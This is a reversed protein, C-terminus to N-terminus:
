RRVFPIELFNILFNKVVDSNKNQMENLETKLRCMGLDTNLEQLTIWGEKVVKGLM